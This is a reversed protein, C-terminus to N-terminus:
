SPAWGLRRNVCDMLDARIRLLQMSVSAASRRLVAALDKVAMGQGYRRDLLDRQGAPLQELCRRLAEIRDSVGAPEDVRRAVVEALAADVQAAGGRRLRQARLFVLMCNRCITRLWPFFERTVDFSELNRLANVFTDQVIDYVDHSNSVYMAVYGRLRAQYLRVLVAFAERDPGRGERTNLAPHTRYGPCCRRQSWEGRRPPRPKGHVDGYIM